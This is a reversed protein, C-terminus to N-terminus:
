QALWIYSAYFAALSGLFGLLMFIGDHTVMGIGFCVVVAAPAMVAFPVVELPIMLLALILIIIAAVYKYPKGTVFTLRPKIFRELKELYPEIKKLRKKAKDSDVSIKKITKPLSVGGPFFFNVAFIALTIGCITPVTPIAGLPSLAILSIALFFPGYSRKGFADLVDGVSVKDGKMQNLLDHFVDSISHPNKSM